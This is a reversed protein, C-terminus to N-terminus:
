YECETKQNGSEIFGLYYDIVGFIEKVIPIWTYGTPPTNTLYCDILEMIDPLILGSPGGIMNLWDCIESPVLEYLAENPNGFYVFHDRNWILYSNGTQDIWYNYKDIANQYAEGVNHGDMLSYWFEGLCERMPQYKDIYCITNFGAFALAGCNNVLHPGLAAGPGCSIFYLIKGSADINTCNWGGGYPSSYWITGWQGSIQNSGGHGMEFIGKPQYQRIMMHVIDKVADNILATHVDWLGKNQAYPIYYNTFLLYGYHTAADDDPCIFLMHAPDVVPNPNSQTQCSNDWWHQCGRCEVNSPTCESCYPYYYCDELNTPSPPLESHCSGNYWWCGADQCDVPNTFYQPHPSPICHCWGYLTTQYWFCNTEVCSTRFQNYNACTEEDAHICSLCDAGRPSWLCGSHAICEEENLYWRCNGM